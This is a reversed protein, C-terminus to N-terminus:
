WKRQRNNIEQQLTEFVSLESSHKSKVCCERGARCDMRSHREGWGWGWGLGVRCNGSTSVELVSGLAREKKWILLV